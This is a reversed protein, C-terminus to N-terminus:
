AATPLMPRLSPLWGGNLVRMPWLSQGLRSKPRLKHDLIPSHRNVCSHGSQTLLLCKRRLFNHRSQGRFRVHSFSALHRTLGSKLIRRDRRLLAYFGVSYFSKPPGSLLRVESRRNLFYVSISKMDDRVTADFTNLREQRVSELRKDDCMTAKRM